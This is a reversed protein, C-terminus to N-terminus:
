DSMRTNGRIGVLACWVRLEVVCAGAHPRRPPANADVRVSLVTVVGTDGHGQLPRFKGPRDIEGARVVAKPKEREVEVGGTKAGFLSTGIRVAEGCVEVVQTDVEQTRVGPRRAALVDPESKALVTGIRGRDAFEVPHENLM